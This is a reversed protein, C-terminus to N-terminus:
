KTKSRLKRKSETLYKEVTFISIKLEAAVDDYSYGYMKHLILVARHVCPLPCLLRAVRKETDIDNAVDEMTAGATEEIADGFDEVEFRHRYRREEYFEALVHNAIQHLYALPIDPETVRRWWRIAIDQLLDDIIERDRGFLKRALHRQLKGRHEVFADVDKLVAAM